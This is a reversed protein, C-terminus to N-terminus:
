CLNVFVETIPILFIGKLLFNFKSNWEFNNEWNNKAGSSDRHQLNYM